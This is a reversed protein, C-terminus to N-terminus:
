GPLSAAVLDSVRVLEYGKARLGEVIAEIADATHAAPGLSNHMVVVSGNRVQALVRQAIAAGSAGDADGSVVDWQVPTLGAPAIGRLAAADLCGGPFRFYPVTRAGAVDRLRDFPAQAEGAMEADPVKGLGYCQGAFGRHTLSHSAVEFLPDTAIGRAQQPYTDIWLGTLFFTAPAHLRRLKALLEANDYSATRGDALRGRMGVTMDGDFTLAVRPRDRPGNTFVQPLGDPGAPLTRAPIPRAPLTAISGATPGTTGTPGTSGTAETTRPAASAAPASAASAGSTGPAADPTTRGGDACAGLLLALAAGAAAAPAARRRAPRDAGPKGDQEGDQEGSRKGNSDAKNGGNKRDATEGALGTGRAQTM